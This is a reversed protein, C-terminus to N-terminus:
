RSRRDHVAFVYLVFMVTRGDEWIGGSDVGYSSVRSPVRGGKSECFRYTGKDIPVEARISSTPRSILRALSKPSQQDSLFQPEIAIILVNRRHPRALEPAGDRASHYGSGISRGSYIAASRRAAPSITVSADVDEDMSSLGSDCVAGDAVLRGRVGAECIEVAISRRRPEPMKPATCTLAVGIARSPAYSSYLLDSSFLSQGAVDGDLCARPPRQGM